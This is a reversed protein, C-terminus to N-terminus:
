RTVRRTAAALAALLGLDVALLGREALGRPLLVQIVEAGPFGPVILPLHSLLFALGAVISAVTLGRVLPEPRAVRRLVALAALPLSVFFLGAAYRHLVAPAAAVTGLANTPFLVSALLGLGSVSFLAVVASPAPLGARALAAPVAVCAAAVALVSVTLLAAGPGWAYDSVTSTLPDLGGIVHVALMSLVALALASEAVTAWVRVFRAASETSPRAPVGIPDGPPADAVQHDAVGQAEQLVPTRVM